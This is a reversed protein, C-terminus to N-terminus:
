AGKKVNSVGDQNPQLVFHKFIGEAILTGNMKTIVAKSDVWKPTKGTVVGTIILPEDIVAPHRFWVEMKATVPNVGEHLIAWGAAEDLLTAIIGGQVVGAWGQYLETPTFETRVGQGDWKFDLKLGIPNDQGCGFCMKYEKNTTETWDVM